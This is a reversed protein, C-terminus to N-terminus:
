ETLHMIAFYPLPAGSWMSIIQPVTEAPLRLPRAGAASRNILAVWEGVLLVGCGFFGQVVGAVRAM